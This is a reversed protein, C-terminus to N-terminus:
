FLTPFFDVIFSEAVTQFPRMLVAPQCKQHRKFFLEASFRERNKIKEADYQDALLSFLLIVQRATDENHKWIIKSIPKIIRSDDSWDKLILKILLYLPSERKLERKNSENTLLILGVVIAEIGNGQVLLM